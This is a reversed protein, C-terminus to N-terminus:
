SVVPTDDQQESPESRVVMNNALAQLMDYLARPVPEGPRITKRLREQLKTKDVHQNAYYVVQVLTTVVADINEDGTTADAM